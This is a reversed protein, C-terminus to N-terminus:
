HSGPGTFLGALMSIRYERPPKPRWDWRFRVPQHELYNMESDARARSPPVMKAFSFRVSGDQDFHSSRRDVLLDYLSGGAMYKTVLAM